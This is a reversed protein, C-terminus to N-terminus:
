APGQQHPTANQLDRVENNARAAEVTQRMIAQNERMMKALAPVGFAVVGFVALGVSSTGFAFAAGTLAPPVSPFANVYAPILAPGAVGSSMTALALTNGLVGAAGIRISDAGESASEKFCERFRALGSKTMPITEVTSLNLQHQRAVRQNILENTM